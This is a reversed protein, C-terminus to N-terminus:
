TRTWGAMFLLDFRAPVRGSEDGFLSQYQQCTTMLVHRSMPIKRRDSLANTEGMMRLERMLTLPHTYNVHITEFDTVPLQFQARQLLGALDRITTFPSIHPCAGGMIMMDAQMMAQRLEILSDGGIMAGLFFGGPKLITHIQALTGPLDNVWHLSMNALVLDACHPALPLFEEDGVIEHVRPDAHSEHFFGSAGDLRILEQTGPRALLRETLRGSRSGLEVIVPFDRCVDQLREWLHDVAADFLYGIQGDHMVTRQRRRRWLCRDFIQPTMRCPGHNLRYIM